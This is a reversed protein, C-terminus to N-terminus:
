TLAYMDLSEAWAQIGADLAEQHELRGDLTAFRSETAWEPDGMVRVLAQWEDDSLCVIVCWDNYGGGLTRYANHPAAIPGRYNNLVPTGPWVSRNGPPFGERRAKRGNATLDLLAAGHLTMAAAVQSLDVHQGEGTSHRHRLATLVGIAGYM